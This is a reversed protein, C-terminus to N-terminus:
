RVAWNESLYWSALRPENRQSVNTLTMNLCPVRYTWGHVLACDNHLSRTSVSNLGGTRGVVM